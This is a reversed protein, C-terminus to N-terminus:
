LLAKPRIWGIGKNFLLMWGNFRESKSNVCKYIQACKYKYIQARTLTSLAAITYKQISTYKYKCVSM